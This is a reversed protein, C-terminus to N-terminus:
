GLHKPLKKVLLRHGGNLSFEEDSQKAKVHNSESWGCNPCNM